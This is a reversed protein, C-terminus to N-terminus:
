YSRPSGELFSSSYIRLMSISDTGGNEKTLRVSFRMGRLKSEV